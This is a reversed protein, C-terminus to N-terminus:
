QKSGPISDGPEVSFEALNPPLNSFVIVFPISKGPAVNLNSLSDGFQNDSRERLKALPLSRLENESLANGCYAVRERLLGGDRNFIQGKVAMASRPESYGNTAVGRVVFLQGAETNNVFFGNLETVKIRSVASTTTAPPMFRQLLSNVDPFEGIWYFYGTAACLGLLILIVLWTLFSTQKGKRRAHKRRAPSVKPAPPLPLPERPVAAKSAGTAAATPVAAEDALAPSNFDLSEADPGEEQDPTAGFEFEGPAATTKDPEGWHLDEEGTEASFAFSSDDSEEFVLEDSAGAGLGSDFDEDPSGTEPPGDEFSLTDFELPPLSEGGAGGPEEADLDFDEEGGNPGEEFSFEDETGTAGEDFAFEDTPSAEFTFEDDAAAPSGSGVFHLEDTSSAAASPEFAFEKDEAASSTPEAFRFEDSAASRAPEEPFPNFAEDGAPAPPAFEDGAAEFRSWDVAQDEGAAATDTAAQPPASPALPAFEEARPESPAPEAVPAPPMITFVEGCKSCRVRTGQPKIKNDALRFRTQCASCQIVM